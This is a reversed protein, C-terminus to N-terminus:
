KWHDAFTKWSIANQKIKGGPPRFRIGARSFFFEGIPKDDNTAQITITAKSGYEGLDIASSPLVVNAESVKEEKTPTNTM